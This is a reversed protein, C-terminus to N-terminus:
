LYPRRKPSSKSKSFSITKKSQSNVDVRKVLSDRMLCKIETNIDATITYEGDDRVYLERGDIYVRLINKFRFISKLFSHGEKHWKITICVKQEYTTM